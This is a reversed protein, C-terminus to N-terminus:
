TKKNLTHNRNLYYSFLTGIVLLFVSFVMNGSSKELTEKLLTMLSSITLSAIFLYLRHRYRKLLFKMLVSIFYAGVIVGISFFISYITFPNSFMQLVFDYFGLIMFTATGSIGPIITTAAEIIGILIIILYSTIQNTAMFKKPTHSSQLFFLVLFPVVLLFYDIKTKINSDSILSPMIGLILGMILFMTYFHYQNLLYVLINSGIILALLIGIGLNGLFIINNKFCKFPHSIIELCKEYVNLVMAIFSGSVGPIIKGIGILFGKLILLLSNM